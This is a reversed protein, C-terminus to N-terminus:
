IEPLSALQRGLEGAKLFHDDYALADGQLSSEPWIPPIAFQRSMRRLAAPGIDHTNGARKGIVTGQSSVPVGGFERVLHKIHTEDHRLMLLADPDLGKMMYRFVNWQEHTDADFNPSVHVLRRGEQLLFPNLNPAEVLRHAARELWRRFDFRLEHPVHVLFHSHLGLTRGVEKVWIAAFPLGPWKKRQDRFWARMLGLLLDHCQAAFSESCQADVRWAVTAFTNLVWGALNATATSTYLTRFDSVSLSKSVRVPRPEQIPHTARALQSEPGNGLPVLPRGHVDVPLYGDRRLSAIRQERPDMDKYRSM